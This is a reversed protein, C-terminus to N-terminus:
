SFVGEYGEPVALIVKVREHWEGNWDYSSYYYKGLAGHYSFYTDNGEAVNIAKLSPMNSCFYWGLAKITSPLNIVTIDSNGTFNFTGTVVGEPVTVEGKLPEVAELLINGKKSEYTNYDYYTANKQILFGNEIYLNENGEAVKVECSEPKRWLRVNKAYKPLTVSTIESSLKDGWWQGSLVDTVPLGDIEDPIVIDGKANSKIDVIGIYEVEEYASTGDDEEVEELRSGKLYLFDGYELADNYEIAYAVLSACKQVIPTPVFVGVATMATGVALIKRWNM